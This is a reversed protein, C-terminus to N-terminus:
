ATQPLPYRRLIDNIDSRKRISRMRASMQSLRCPPACLDRILRIHPHGAMLVVGEMGIAPLEVTVRRGSPKATLDFSIPTIETVLLRTLKSVQDQLARRRQAMEREHRNKEMGHRDRKKSYPVYRTGFTQADIKGM